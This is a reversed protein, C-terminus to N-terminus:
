HDTPRRKHNLGHQHRYHATDRAGWVAIAVFVILLLLESYM